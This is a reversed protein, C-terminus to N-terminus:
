ASKGVVNDHALAVGNAVTVALKVLLLVSRLHSKALLQSM